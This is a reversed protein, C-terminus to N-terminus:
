KSYLLCRCIETEKGRHYCRTVWRFLSQSPIAESGIWVRHSFTINRGGGSFTQWGKWLRAANVSSDLLNQTSCISLTPKMVDITFLFPDFLSIALANCLLFPDFLSIALANCLLFPDFLSIALVNCLLQMKTVSTCNQSSNLYFIPIENTDHCNIVEKNRGCLSVAVYHQGCRM